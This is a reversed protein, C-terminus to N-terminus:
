CEALNLKFHFTKGFCNPRPDFGVGGRRVMLRLAITDAEELSLYTCPKGPLAKTSSAKRKVLVAIEPLLHTVNRKFFGNMLMFEGCFTM